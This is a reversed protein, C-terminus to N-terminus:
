WEAAGVLPAAPPLGQFAALIRPDLETPAANVMLETFAWVLADMRDPSDGSGDYQTMQDELKPFKGAHHVRGQEYFSSVPEARTLKGRSAHVLEIPLNPDISRLTHEVMLGGNNAEAVVLDASWARYARVVESGWELPTGDCSFDDLVYGDGHHDVCCVVIGTESGPGEDEPGRKPDGTKPDVGVVIRRRNILSPEGQDVRLEDIMGLNWLAGPVDLLLEANLEQRGLRTGEYRRVVTRIFSPALNAENEYTSGTSVVVPATPKETTRRDALLKVIIPKPRPTTAIVIQPHTGLRVGLSLQDWADPYRWAALEDVAAYHFQHGRLRDPEDASYMLLRTGTSPVLIERSSKAYHLEVGARRFVELIGSEGEVLIRRTDEAVAGVLAVRYAPGETAKERVWETATRTKGFGRGALLLWIDWDGPPPVQSPRRTAEWSTAKRAKIRRIAAKAAVATAAVDFDRSM